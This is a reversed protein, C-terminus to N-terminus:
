VDKFWYLQLVLGIMGIVHLSKLICFISEYVLGIMGIAPKKRPGDKVNWQSDPADSVCM